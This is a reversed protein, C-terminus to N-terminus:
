FPNAQAGIHGRQRDMLFRPEVIGRFGGARHMGAAMIPMCRHQQAGRFVQTLRPVEVAVDNQDELRCLFTACAGLRHDIVPQDVPESNILDIAEMVAGTDRDPCDHRAGSRELGGGIFKLNNDRPEAPVCRFGVLRDIRRKNGGLDHDCQM